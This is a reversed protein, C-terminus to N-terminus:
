PQEEDTTQPGNHTTDDTEALDTDDPVATYDAVAQLTDRDTKAIFATAAVTGYIQWGLAAEEADDSVTRELCWTIRQWSQARNDARTRQRVTLMVGVVALVGVILTVWSQAPM